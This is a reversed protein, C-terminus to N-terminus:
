IIEAARYGYVQEAAPNFLSIKGNMDSAIIADPSNKTDSWYDQHLRLYQKRVHSNTLVRPALCLDTEGATNKM